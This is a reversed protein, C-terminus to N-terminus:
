LGCFVLLYCWCGTGARHYIYNYFIWHRNIWPLLIAYKCCYLTTIRLWTCHWCSHFSSALLNLFVCYATSQLSKGPPKGSQWFLDDSLFYYYILEKFELPSTHLIIGMTTHRQTSTCINHICPDRLPPHEIATLNYIYGKVSSLSKLKDQLEQQLLWLM